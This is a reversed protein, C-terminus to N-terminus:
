VDPQIEMRTGPRVLVNNGPLVATRLVRLGIRPWARHEGVVSSAVIGTHVEQSRSRGEGARGRNDDSAEQHDNGANALPPQVPSRHITRDAMVRASGACAAPESDEDFDLRRWPNM